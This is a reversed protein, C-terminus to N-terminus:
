NQPVPYTKGRFEVEVKLDQASMKRGEADFVFGEDNRRIRREITGDSLLVMYSGDNLDVHGDIIVGSPKLTEFRVTSWSEYNTLPKVQTMSSSDSNLWIVRRQYEDLEGYPIVRCSTSTGVHRISQPIRLYSGSGGEPVYRFAGDAGSCDFLVNKVSESASEWNLTFLEGAEPNTPSVYATVLSVNQKEDASSAPAPLCSASSENIAFKGDRCSLLISGTVGGAMNTAVAVGGEGASLKGQFSCGENRFGKWSVDMPASCGTKVIVGGADAGAAPGYIEGVAKCKDINWRCILSDDFAFASNAAMFATLGILSYLQKRM